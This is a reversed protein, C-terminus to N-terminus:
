PEQNAEEEEGERERGFRGVSGFKGGRGMKGDEEDEEEKTGGLGDVVIAGYGDLVAMYWEVGVSRGVPRGSVLHRVTAAGGGSKEELKYSYAFLFRPLNGEVNKVVVSM